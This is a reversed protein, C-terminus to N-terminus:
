HEDAYYQMWVLIMEIWGEVFLIKGKMGDM